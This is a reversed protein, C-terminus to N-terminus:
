GDGIEVVELRNRERFWPVGAAYVDGCGAPSLLFELQRECGRHWVTSDGVVAPVCWTRECLPCRMLQRGHCDM